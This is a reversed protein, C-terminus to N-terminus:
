RCFDTEKCVIDYATILDCVDGDDYLKYVKKSEIGARALNEAMQEMYVSSSLIIRDVDEPVSQYSVTPREGNEAPFGEHERGVDSVIFIYQCRVKGVLREYLALMAETHEGKGYIGVKAHPNDFCMNGLKESLIKIFRDRVEEYQRFNIKEGLGKLEGYVYLFVCCADFDPASELFYAEWYELFKRLYWIKEAETERPSGYQKELGRMQLVDRLIFKKKVEEKWKNQPSEKLYDWIKLQIHGRDRYKRRDAPTTTISDPRYRRIYLEEAICEVQKAECVAQIQFFNDEFYLGEPFRIGHNKLFSNKYAGLCASVVYNGPFAEYFYEMGTMLRGCLKEKRRYINRHKRGEMDERIAAGYYLVDQGSLRQKLIWVTQLDLYDDSDLFILYESKAYAMGLNRAASLGKNEQNLLKIQPYKRCYERCISLSGDESGDNVVVIEDFPVAQGTVSDLCERLYDEVNYVPIVVGLSHAM